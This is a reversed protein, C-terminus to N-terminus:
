DKRHFSTEMSPNREKLVYSSICITKHSKKRKVTLAEDGTALMMKM